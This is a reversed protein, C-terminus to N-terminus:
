FVATSVVYRLPTESDIGDFPYCTVLIIGPFEMQDDFVIADKHLIEISVVSYIARNTLSELGIRDGIQLDKLHAFHTDRHGLIVSNGLEGPIPSQNLHAPGFALNRLSAGQLVYLEHEAFSLKAVPWTDAWHWPKHHELDQRSDQWAQKILWQALEAKAFIYSGHGVYWLGALAFLGILLKRAIPLASRM